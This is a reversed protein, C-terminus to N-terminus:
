SDCVLERKKVTVFKCRDKRKVKRLWRVTLIPYNESKMSVMVTNKTEPTDRREASSKYMSEADLRGIVTYLKKLSAEDTTLQLDATWADAEATFGNEALLALVKDRMIYDARVKELIEARRERKDDIWRQYMALDRDISADAEAVKQNVLLQLAASLEENEM